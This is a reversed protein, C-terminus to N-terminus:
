RGGGTSYLREREAAAAAREAAANALTQSLLERFGTREADMRVREAAMDALLRDREALLRDREALLVDFVRQKPPSPASSVASPPSPRTLLTPATENAPPSPCACRGDATSAGGM